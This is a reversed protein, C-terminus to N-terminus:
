RTSRRRGWSRARSSRAHGHAARDARLRGARLPRAQLARPLVEGRGEGGRPLRGLLEGRRLLREANEPNARVSGSKSLIPALVPLLAFMDLALMRCVRRAPHEHRIALQVMLGDYPLVGSHNAVILGPGSPRCTRSAPPRWAGGSPTSSTWSRSWRRRSAGTPASSTRRRPTGPSTSRGAAAARPEGLERGAGRRPPRARPDVLLGEHEEASRSRALERELEALRRRLAEEEPAPTRRRRPRTAIPVVKETSLGAGGPRGSGGAGAGRAGQRPPGHGPLPVRPVGYPTGAPTGRRSASSAGPRRATPWSSTGLTTSSAARPRVWAPAGGCTRWRTPSSTRFRTGDAQGGPPARDAAVDHRAAGRQRDRQPGEGAGRGRRALADDPHLLQVLPDYGLVM